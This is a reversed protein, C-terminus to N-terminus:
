FQMMQQFFVRFYADM